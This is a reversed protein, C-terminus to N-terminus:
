LSECSNLLLLAAVGSVASKVSLSRKQKPEPSSSEARMGAATFDILRRLIDEPDTSQVMGQSFVTVRDGHTLAHIMTGFSFHMRWFLDTSDIDPLSKSVAAMFRSIMENFLGVLTGSFNDTPEALCRGALKLYVSSNHPSAKLQNVVPRHVSELIEEIPVANVGHRAEAEDLLKLRLENIPSIVRTLVEAVLAEKSGFHYNVSAINVEAERTIQRLSVDRFGHDSFLQEATDLIRTKTEVQQSASNSM